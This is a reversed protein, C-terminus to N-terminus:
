VDLTEDVIMVVSVDDGGGLQYVRAQPRDIEEIVPLTSFEAPWAAVGSGMLRDLDAFAAPATDVVPRRVSPLPLQSAVGAVLLAAAAYRWIPKAARREHRRASRLAAVASRMAEVEEAEHRGDRDGGPEALRRLVLTPDLALASRRCADCADLHDLEPSALPSADSRADLREAIRTALRPWEACHATM